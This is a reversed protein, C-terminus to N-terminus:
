TEGTTGVHTVAESICRWADDFQGLEAYAEALFALWDVVYATSGTSRWGALAAAIKQAAESPKANLALM